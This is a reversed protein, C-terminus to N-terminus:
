TVYPHLARVMSKLESHYEHKSTTHCAFQDSLKHKHPPQM